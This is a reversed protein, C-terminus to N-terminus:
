NLFASCYCNSTFGETVWRWFDGPCARKRSQRFSSVRNTIASQDNFVEGHCVRSCINTGGAVFKTWNCGDCGKTKLSLLKTIILIVCVTLSKALRQKLGYKKTSSEIERSLFIILFSSTLILFCSCVFMAPSMLACCIDYNIVNTHIRKTLNQM